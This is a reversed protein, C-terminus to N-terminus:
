EAEGKPPAPYSSHVPTPYKKGWLWNPESFFDLLKPKSLIIERTLM